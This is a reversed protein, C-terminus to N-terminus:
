LFWQFIWSTYVGEMTKDIPKDCKSKNGKSNEQGYFKSVFLLMWVYNFSAWDALFKNTVLDASQHFTEGKYIDTHNKGYHSLLKEM